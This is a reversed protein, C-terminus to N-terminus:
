KWMCYLPICVISYREFEQNFMRIVKLAGRLGDLLSIFDTIKRKSYTLHEFFIARSDPHDRAQSHCGQGHIRFIENAFLSKVCM